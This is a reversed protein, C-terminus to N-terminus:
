LYTKIQLMKATYKSHIERKLADVIARFKKNQNYGDQGQIIIVNSLDTPDNLESPLNFTGEKQRRLEIELENLKEELSGAIM